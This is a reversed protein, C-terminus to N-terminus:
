RAITSKNKAYQSIMYKWVEAEPGVYEFEWKASPGKKNIVDYYPDWFEQGAKYAFYSWSWGKADLIELVDKVWINGGESWRSAQFEGIYVPYGHKKEFQTLFELKKELMNKDYLDGKINGPYKLGKPRNKIGQHTFPDPIYMHAGYILYPDKIAYPKFDKYNTPRGWPGPTLLFWRQRDHVRIAKLVEQYFTEIQPPIEAKLKGQIAPEGVVEYASLEDGRVKFHKAIISVMKYSSDIFSKKSWFEASKDDVDLKPDLVLYNFALIATMNHKKIQDLMSDAWAIEKYFNGIPDGGDRLTRKVPKLQVRIFNVNVSALYDIDTPRCSKSEVCIGRWPWNKPLDGSPTVNVANALEKESATNKQQKNNSNSSSENCTGSLLILSCPIIFLVSNRITIM